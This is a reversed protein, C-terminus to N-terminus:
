GNAGPWDRGLAPNPIESTYSAGGGREHDEALGARVRSSSDDADTASPTSTRAPSKSSVVDAPIWFSDSTTLPLAGVSEERGHKAALVKADVRLEREGPRIARPQAERGAAAERDGDKRM